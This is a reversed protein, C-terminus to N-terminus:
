YILEMQTSVVQHYYEEEFILWEIVGLNRGGYKEPWTIVSWGNEFLKKEWTRHLEFGEQTDMSPLPEKPINEKLWNRVEARFDKQERTPDLDM